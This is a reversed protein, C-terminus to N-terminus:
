DDGGKGKADKTAKSKVKAKEKAAADANDKKMKATVTELRKDVEAILLTGAKITKANMLCPVQPVDKSKMDACWSKGNPLCAKFVMSNETYVLQLNHNAGRQVAFFLNFTKGDSADHRLRSSQPFLTKHM